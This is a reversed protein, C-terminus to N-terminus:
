VRSYPAHGYLSVIKDKHSTQRKESKILCSFQKTMYKLQEVNM